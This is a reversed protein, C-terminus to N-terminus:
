DELAAVDRITRAIAAYDKSLIKSHNSPVKVGIQVNPNGAFVPDLSARAREMEGDESGLTPLGAHCGIQRIPLMGHRIAAHRILSPLMGFM